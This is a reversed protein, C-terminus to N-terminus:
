DYFHPEGVFVKGEDYKEVFEMFSKEWEEKSQPKPKTRKRRKIDKNNSLNVSEVSEPKNRFVLNKAMYQLSVTKESRRLVMYDIGEKWLSKEFLKFRKELIEEIEVATEPSTNDSTAFISENFLSAVVDKDGTKIVYNPFDFMFVDDEDQPLLQEDVEKEEEKKQPKGLTGSAKKGEPLEALATVVGDDIGGTENKVSRVYLYDFSPVLEAVAQSIVILANDDVVPVRIYDSAKTKRSRLLRKAEKESCGFLVLDDIDAYELRSRFEEKRQGFCFDCVRHQGCRFITREITGTVTSKAFVKGCFDPSRDQVTPKTFSELWELTVAEDQEEVSNCM